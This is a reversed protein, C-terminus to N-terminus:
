LKLGSIISEAIRRGPRRSWSRYMGSGSSAQRKCIEFDIRERKLANKVAVLRRVRAGVIQELLGLAEERQAVRLQRGDLAAVDRVQPSRQLEVLALAVGFADVVREHSRAIAAFSRLRALVRM